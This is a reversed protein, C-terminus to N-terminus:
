ADISIIMHNIDKGKNINNLINISKSINFGEQMRPIFRVQDHHIRETYQQIQNALIKKLIQTATKM